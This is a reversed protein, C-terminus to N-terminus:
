SAPRLLMVLAVVSLFVGALILPPPVPAGLALEWLIVVSPTLYTYAMVNSAPLRMAAFQVLFVTMSSAAFATYLLTIWVLPRQGTWSMGQADIQTWLILVACTALLTLFTFILVPEGRNLWRVAPAYAAHAVCGWFFIAEGPGIEFALLAALDARFIVWLAGAAGIALAFSMWLTLRQRLLIYGFGAAMVPTLTFVAASSVPPATKLGEFMAVFYAGYLGGLLLYRWPAVLATRAIGGRVMVLTGIAGAALCFRVANFTAPDIEAAVRGGLSYSGAILIAFALMALHGRSAETRGPAESSASM